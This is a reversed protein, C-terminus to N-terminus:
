DLLTFVGKVLDSGSEKTVVTNYDGIVRVIEFSTNTNLTPIKEAEKSGHAALTLRDVFDLAPGILETVQDIVGTTSDATIKTTDVTVIVEFIKGDKASMTVSGLGSKLSYSLKENGIRETIDYLDMNQELSEFTSELSNFYLKGNGGLLTVLPNYLVIAATVITVVLVGLISLAVIRGTHRAKKVTEVAAEAVTDLTTTEM